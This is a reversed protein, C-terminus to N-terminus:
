DSSTKRREELWAFAEEETSFFGTSQVVDPAVKPIIIAQIVRTLFTDAVVASSYRLNPPTIDASELVKKLLYPTYPANDLIYLYQIHIGKEAYEKDLAIVLEYGADVTEKTMNTFTFSHIHPRYKAYVLGDTLQEQEYPINVM